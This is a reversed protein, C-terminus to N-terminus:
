MCGASSPRIGDASSSSCVMTTPCLLDQSPCFTVTSSSVKPGSVVSLLHCSSCCHGHVCPYAMCICVCGSLHFVCKQKPHTQPFAYPIVIYYLISIHILIHYILTIVNWVLRINCVEEGFVIVVSDAKSTYHQFSSVYM